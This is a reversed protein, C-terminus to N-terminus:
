SREPRCSIHTCGLVGPVRWTERIRLDSGSSHARRRLSQSRPTRSTWGLALKFEGRSTRDIWQLVNQRKCEHALYNLMLLRRIGMLGLGIMLKSHCLAVNFRGCWCTLQDLGAQAQDTLKNTVLQYRVWHSLIGAITDAGDGQLKISQTVSYTVRNSQSPVILFVWERMHYCQCPVVFPAKESLRLCLNPSFVATCL